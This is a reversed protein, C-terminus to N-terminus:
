IGLIEREEASLKAMAAKKVAERRKKEAIRKREEEDAKKHATYWNQFEKDSKLLIATMEPSNELEKLVKCLIRTVKDLRSKLAKSESNDYQGDTYYDRCPM